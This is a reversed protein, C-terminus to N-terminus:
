EHHDASASRFQSLDCSHTAKTFLSAHDALEALEAKLEGGYPDASGPPTTRVPFKFRKVEGNRFKITWIISEGAYLPQVSGGMPVFDAYARNEIAIQSCIKICAYCEWCQEPEQNWAKMPQGTVSGDRDLKMLDHPCIYVCAAEGRDKCGDCKDTRVFAPM